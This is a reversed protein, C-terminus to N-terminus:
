EIYKMKQIQEVFKSIRKPAGLVILNDDASLKPNEDTKIIKSIRQKVYVRHVFLIEIGFKKADFQDLTKGEASKPLCIRAIATESDLQLQESEGLIIHEGMREGMMKEPLIVREVGLKELIEGQMSNSARAIIHKIGLEKLYIVVLLTADFSEGFCVLAADPKVKEVVETTADKETSEIIMVGSVLDRISELSDKNHDVVYVEAGLDALKTSVSKGFIGAGFVIYRM